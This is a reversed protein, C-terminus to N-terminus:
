KLMEVRLPIWDGTHHNAGSWVYLCVAMANGYSIGSPKFGTVSIVESSSSAGADSLATTTSMRYTGILSM